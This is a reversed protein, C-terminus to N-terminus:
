LGLGLGIAFTLRDIPRLEGDIADSWVSVERSHGLYRQWAVDGFVTWGAGLAAELGGGLKFGLQIDDSDSANPTAGRSLSLMACLGVMARARAGAIFEWPVYVQSGLPIDVQSGAASETMLAEITGEVGLWALPEWRFRGGTGHSTYAGEWQAYHVQLGLEPWPGAAEAAPAPSTVAVGVVVRVLLSVLVKM